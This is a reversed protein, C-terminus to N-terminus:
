LAPPVGGASYGHRCLRVAELTKHESQLRARGIMRQPEGDFQSLQELEFQKAHEELVGAQLLEGPNWKRTLKPRETAAPMRDINALQRTFQLMAAWLASFVNASAALRRGVWHCNSTARPGMAAVIAVTECVLSMTTIPSGIDAASRTVWCNEQNTWAANRDAAATIITGLRIARTWPGMTAIAIVGSSGLM